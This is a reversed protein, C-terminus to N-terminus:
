KFSRWNRVGRTQTNNTLTEKCKLLTKKYKLFDDQCLGEVGDLIDIIKNINTTHYSM